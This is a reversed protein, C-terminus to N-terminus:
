TCRSGRRGDRTHQDATGLVRRPGGAVVGRTRRRTSVEASRGIRCRLAPERNGRRVAARDQRDLWGASCGVCVDLLHRSLSSRCSPSRGVLLRLGGVFAGRSRLFGIGRTVGSVGVGVGVLLSRCRPRRLCRRAPACVATTAAGGARRRRDGDDENGCKGDRSNQAPHQPLLPLHGPRPLLGLLGRDRIRLDQRADVRVLDVLVEVLHEVARGTLELVHIRLGADLKALQEDVVLRGRVPDHTSDAIWDADLSLTTTSSKTSWDTDLVLTGSGRMSRLLILIVISNTSPRQRALLTSTARLIPSSVHPHAHENGHHGGHTADVQRAAGVAAADAGDNQSSSPPWHFPWYQWVETRDSRLATRSMLTAM